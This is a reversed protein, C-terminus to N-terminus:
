NLQINFLDLVQQHMPEVGGSVAENLLDPDAGDLETVLDQILPLAAESILRGHTQEDQMFLSLMKLGRLMMQEQALEICVDAIINKFLIKTREDLQTLREQGLVTINKDVFAQPSLQRDEVLIQKIKTIIKDRTDNCLAVFAQARPGFNAEVEVGSIVGADM